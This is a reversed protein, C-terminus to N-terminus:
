ESSTHDVVIKWQGKIKRWILLYHGGIDGITRKLHWSGTLSVVKKSHKTLDKIEFTLQGM